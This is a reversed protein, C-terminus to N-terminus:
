ILTQISTAARRTPQLEFRDGDSLQSMDSVTVTMGDVTFEGTATDVPVRFSTKSGVVRVEFENTAADFKLTYDFGKLGSIDSFEASLSATGDNRANSFIVPNSINFFPKGPNGNLDVGQEHQTNFAVALSVALQGLQ